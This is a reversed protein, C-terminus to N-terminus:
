KNPGLHVVRGECVQVLISFLLDFLVRNGIDVSSAFAQSIPDTEEAQFERGQVQLARFENPRLQGVGIKDPRAKIV